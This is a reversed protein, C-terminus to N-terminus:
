QTVTVSVDTSCVSSQTECVRFVYTGPALQRSWVGDNDTDGLRVGDQYIDVLAGTAGTFILTVTAPSTAYDVGATLSIPPPPPTRIESIVLHPVDVRHSGSEADLEVSGGHAHWETLIEVEILMFAQAPVTVGTAPLLENFEISKSSDDGFFDGSVGATALVQDHVISSISSDMSWVTTRARVSARAESNFGFWSAVGNWEADCSLHANVVLNPRATLITPTSQKNQWLTFFSLRGIGDFSDSTSELKYRAWNDSPGINSDVVLGQGLFSRIFTVQDIVTELPELPFIVPALDKLRGWAAASADVAKRRTDEALKKHAKSREAALKDLRETKLGAEALGRKALELEERALEARAKAENPDPSRPARRPAIVKEIFAEAAERKDTAAAPKKTPAELTDTQM